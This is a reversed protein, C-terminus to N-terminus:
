KLDERNHPNTKALIHLRLKDLCDYAGKSKLWKDDDTVNAQMFQWLKVKENSIWVMVDDTTM